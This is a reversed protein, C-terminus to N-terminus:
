RKALLMLLVACIVALAQFLIRGMMMRNQKLGSASPGTNGSKLDAETTQLFTVIGRILMVAAGIAFVIILIWLFVTM